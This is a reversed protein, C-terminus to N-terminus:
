WLMRAQAAIWSENFNWSNEGNGIWILVSTPTYNQIDYIRSLSLCMRGFGDYMENSCAMFITAVVCLNM